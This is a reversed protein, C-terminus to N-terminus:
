TMGERDSEFVSMRQCIRHVAIAKKEKSYPGVVANKEFSQPMGGVTTGTALKLCTQQTVRVVRGDSTSLYQPEDMGGMIPVNPARRAISLRDELFYDYARSRFGSHGGGLLFIFAGNRPCFYGSFM